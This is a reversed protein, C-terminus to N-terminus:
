DDEFPDSADDARLAAILKEKTKRGEVKLEREELEAVLEDQSWEDYDDEAGDHDGESEDDEPEDSKAEDDAELAEIYKEKTKRGKIADLGREEHEAQLDELSWESYDEGAEPEDGEPEDDPGDDDAAAPKSSGGGVKAGDKAKFLKGVKATPDGDYTDAKVQISIVKGKLKDTDIQGKDKLGLATTLEKLKWASSKSLGIYTYLFRYEEGVSLTLKIDNAPSGDAKETRHEAEIIKATYTGPKPIEGGGSEEVDSVDYTLKAM